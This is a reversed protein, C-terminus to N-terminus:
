RSQAVLQPTGGLGLLSNILIQTQHGAIGDATLRHARQFATLKQELEEDFLDSDLNAPRFDADIAALSQRLWLVNEDRVGQRIIDNRGNPPRWVLLFEGFWLESIDDLPYVVRTDAIALEGTKETLSVLVPQHTDGNADTLTLMVPRDLQRIGSWSGRSFYCSLGKMEAQQCASSDTSKAYDVNWLGFLTSMAVEAGTAEGADRLRQELSVSDREPPANGSGATDAAAAQVPIRVSESPRPDDRDILSWIGIIALVVGIVGFVPVAWKLIVPTLPQGSVEAAARRVIAKNVNRTERSYAGLLARDCIVNMLRPIGGSLRYVEHKAGADFIEGLAGAVKLRHDIYRASEERSLPELHYRGTVRQALQRLNNQSLLERLEPQAILVIQLLKQKATELNTLLRLQELVGASLNQAEDVLLITRRGRAHASLLHLNLADVLSKSSTRDAPLPVGLEECIALLFEVATLQPNLILAVDVESPMQGLLTRVLTTKGTGVEGTLQIFGGSETVGYVLHALGEGHRESMFLYRPDPTIAFPKENLGFFKTYM